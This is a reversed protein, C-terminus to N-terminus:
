IYIQPTYEIIDKYEKFWADRSEITDFTLIPLTNFKITTDPRELIYLNTNILFYELNSLYQALIVTGTKHRVNRLSGIIKVDKFSNPEYFPMQCIISKTLKKSTTRVIIEM